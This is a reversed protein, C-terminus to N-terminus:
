ILNSINEEYEDHGINVGEVYIQAQESGTVKYPKPKASLAENLVYTRITHYFGMSGKKPGPKHRALALDENYKIFANILWEEFEKKKRLNTRAESIPRSM